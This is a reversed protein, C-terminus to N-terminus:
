TLISEYELSLNHDDAHRLMSEKVAMHCSPPWPIKQPLDLNCEM